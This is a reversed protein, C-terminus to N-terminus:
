TREYLSRFAASVGSMGLAVHLAAENEALDPHANWTDVMRMMDDTHKTVLDNPTMPTLISQNIFPSLESLGNEFMKVGNSGPYHESLTQNVPHSYGFNLNALPQDSTQSAIRADLDAKRAEIQSNQAQRQYHSALGNMGFMSATDAKQLSAQANQLHQSASLGGIPNGIPNGAAPPTTTAGVGATQTVAETTGLAGGAALSAGGSAVASGAMVATQIIGKGVQVMKGLADGAAGITLRGLIGSLSLLFGTMGFLWLVHFIQSLLGARGISAAAQIGVKFIGAAVVPLLAIIVIGQLWLGRLWRMKPIVGAVMVVPGIAALVYMAAHGSAFAVLIGVVALLSAIILAIDIVPLMFTTTASAAAGATDVMASIGGTMGSVFVGAMSGANGIVSSMIWWGVQNILDLLAGAAVALIGATLWDGIVHLVDDEDGILRNWNYIALRLIFLAVALGAAVKLGGSAVDNYAGTPPASFIDGFAITWQTEQQVAWEGSSVLSKNFIDLLAESITGTPFVVFHFIQTVKKVISTVVDGGGGGGDSTGAPNPSAGPPGPVPDGGGPADIPYTTPGNTKDGVAGNAFGPISFISSGVVALVLAICGILLIRKTENLKKMDAEGGVKQYIDKQRCVSISSYIMCLADTFAPRDVVYAGDNEM